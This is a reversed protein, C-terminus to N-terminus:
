ADQARRANHEDEASKLGITFVYGLRRQWKTITVQDTPECGRARSEDNQALLDVLRRETPEDREIELRAERIKRLNTANPESEEIKLALDTFKRCLTDHLCAKKDLGFVLDATSAMAVIATLVGAVVPAHALVAVFGSTGSIATAATTYDHCAQYFARM